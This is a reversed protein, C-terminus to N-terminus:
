LAKAHDGTVRPKARVVLGDVVRARDGEAAQLGVVRRARALIRVTERSGSTWTTDARLDIEGGAPVALADVRGVVPVVDPVRDIRAETVETVAARRGM